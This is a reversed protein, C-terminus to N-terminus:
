KPLLDVIPCLVDLTHLLIFFSSHSWAAKTKKSAILLPGPYCCVMAAEVIHACNEKFLFIKDQSRLWKAKAWLHLVSEEEVIQSAKQSLFM